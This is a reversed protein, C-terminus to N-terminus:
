EGDEDFVIWSVTAPTDSLVTADDPVTTKREGINEPDVTTVEVEVEIDMDDEEMDLQDIAQEIERRSKRSM